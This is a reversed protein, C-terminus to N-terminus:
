NIHLNFTVFHHRPEQLIILLLTAKLTLFIAPARDLDLVRYPLEQDVRYVALLCEFVRNKFHIFILCQRNQHCQGVSFYVQTFSISFFFLLM